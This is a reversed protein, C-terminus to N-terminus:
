DTPFAEALLPGVFRPYEPLSHQLFTKWRNERPGGARKEPVARLQM